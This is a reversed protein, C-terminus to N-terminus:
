GSDPWERAEDELTRPTYHFLELLRAHDEPVSEALDQPFNNMLVVSEVLHKLYPFFPRSLFAATKLAILPIKGCTIEQGRVAGIRRAADAFALAEPGAMRLRLGHLDERLAAQAAIAGVDYKSVTPLLPPGGGPVMMKNGRVFAFFLDMMPPCGLVTWNLDSDRLANEVALKVHATEMKLGLSALLDMRLDYVSLYVVRQINQAVAEQLVSIVAEQEIEVLRGILRPTFASVAIIIARCGELCRSVNEAVTIDGEYVEVHEGLMIQAPAGNRSLVRVPIKRGVLAEVIMRGYHGTGGLVLVPGNNM